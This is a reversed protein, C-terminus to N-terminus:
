CGSTHIFCCRPPGTINTPMDIMVELEDFDFQMEDNTSSMDAPPAASPADVPEDDGHYVPFDIDQITPTSMALQNNTTLLPTQARHLLTLNSLDPHTLSRSRSDRAHPLNERSQATNATTRMKYSHRHLSKTTPSAPM